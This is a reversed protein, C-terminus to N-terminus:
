LAAVAGILGAFAMVGVAFGTERPGGATSTNGPAKTGSGGTPTSGSGGAGAGGASGTPAPASGGGGLGSSTSCLLSNSAEAIPGALESALEPCKALASSIQPEVASAWSILESSYASFESAISTPVSYSCPDTMTAFDGTLLAAPPTPLSGAISLLDSACAAGALPDSGTQRPVLDRNVHAPHAIHNASAHAFTALATLTFTPVLM